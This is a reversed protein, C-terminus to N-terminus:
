RMLQHDPISARWFNPQGKISIPLRLEKPSTMPWAMMSQDIAYPNAKAIIETVPVVKGLKVTGVLKGLCLIHRDTAYAELLALAQKAKAPRIGAVGPGYREIQALLKEASAKYVYRSSAAHIGLLNGQYREPVFLKSFYWQMHGRVIMTAFPQLVTVANIVAM